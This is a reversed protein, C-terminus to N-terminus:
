EEEDFNGYKMAQEAVLQAKFLDKEKKFNKQFRKREKETFEAMANELEMREVDPTIILKGDECKVSIYDGVDFGLEGLWKGKLVITPTEQYKYGSMGYVKVSRKSKKM